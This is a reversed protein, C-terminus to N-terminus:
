IKLFSKTISINKSLIIIQYVGPSLNGVEMTIKNTGVNLKTYSKQIVNGVIDLIQIKILDEYNSYLVLELSSLVPNPILQLLYLSDPPLFIRRDGCLGTLQIVGPFLSVQINRGWFISQLNWDISCTDKNGLGVNGIIKGLIGELPFNGEIKFILVRRDNIIENRLIQTEGYDSKLEFPLFMHPDFSIEAEFFRKGNYPYSEKNKFLIPIEIKGKPITKIEPFFVESSGLYPGLTITKNVGCPSSFITMNAEIPNSNQLSINLIKASKSAIIFPTQIDLSYSNAPSITVSDVIVDIDSNNKITFSRQPIEPIFRVDSQSVSLEIGIGKGVIPIRFIYDKQGLYFIELYSSFLGIERPHFKIKVKLEGNSELTLNSSPAIISFYRNSSPDIRIFDIPLHLTDNNTGIVLEFEAFQNVCVEGLDIQSITFSFDRNLGKGWLPIRYEKYCSIIVLTDYFNGTDKPNYIISLNACSKPAITDGIINRALSFNRGNTFYFYDIILPVDGVNCLHTDTQFTIPSYIKQPPFKIENISIKPRHIKFLESAVIEQFNFERFVIVGREIETSAVTFGTPSLKCDSISYGSGSIENAKINNVIDWLVISPQYQFGLVVFNDTPSFDVSIADSWNKYLSRVILGTSIDLVYADSYNQYIDTIEFKKTTFALLKQDNSIAINTIYPLYKLEVRKKESLTSLDYLVITNSLLAVALLNNKSAIKQIPAPFTIKQILKLKPLEYIEIINSPIKFLLLSRNADSVAFQGIREGEALAIIGKLSGDSLDIVLITDNKEVGYYDRPRFSIVANSDNNCYGINTIFVNELPFNINSFNYSRIQNKSLLDIETIKGDMSAAILQTGDSNFAIKQPKTAEIKLSIEPTSSYKQSIKIQVSDSTVNPVSWLYENGIVDAIHNWDSGKNTSYYISVPTNQKNGLWKIHYGQCPYLIEDKKPQIISIQNKKSIPFFNGVLPIPLEKGNEYSIILYERFYRNQQPIFLVEISYPFPSILSVPPPDTNISSGLWLYKFDNSTTGVWDIRTSFKTNGRSKENVSIINIRQNAYDGVSVNGFRIERLINRDNDVAKIEAVPNDYYPHKSAITKQFQVTEEGLTVYLNVFAYVSNGLSPALFSGWGKAKWQLVQYGDFSPESIKEPKFPFNGDLIIVNEPTLKQIKGDKYTRIKISIEPYKSLDINEDVDIQINSLGVSFTILWLILYTKIKRM